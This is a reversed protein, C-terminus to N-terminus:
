DGTRTNRGLLPSKQQQMGDMHKKKEDEIAAPRKRKRTKGAETHKKKRINKKEREDEGSMDYGEVKWHLAETHKKEKM